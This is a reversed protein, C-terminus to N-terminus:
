IDREKKVCAISLSPQYNGASMEMEHKMNEKRSRGDM